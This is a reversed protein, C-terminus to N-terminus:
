LGQKCSTLGYKNKVPVRGPACTKDKNNWWDQATKRITDNKQRTETIDGGTGYNIAEDEDCSALGLSLVALLVLPLVKKMM